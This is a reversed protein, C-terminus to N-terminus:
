VILYYNSVNDTSCCWVIVTSNSIRKFLHNALMTVSSQEITEETGGESSSRLGFWSESLILHYGIDDVDSGSFNASLLLDAYVKYLSSGSM